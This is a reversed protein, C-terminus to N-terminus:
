YPTQIIAAKRRGCKYCSKFLFQVNHLIYLIMKITYLIIKIEIPKEASIQANADVQEIEVSPNFKSISVDDQVNPAECSTSAIDEEEASQNLDLTSDDADLDLDLDLKERNPTEDDLAAQDTRLFYEQVLFQMSDLMIPLVIIVLAQKVQISFPKFIFHIAEVIGDAASSAQYLGVLTGLAIIRSLVVCSWWVFCQM